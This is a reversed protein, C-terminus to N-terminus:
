RPLGYEDYLLDDFDKSTMGGRWRERSGDVIDYFENERRRLADPLRAQERRISQLRQRLAETVAQAISEGSQEALQRAEASQINLELGM